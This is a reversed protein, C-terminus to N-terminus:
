LTTLHRINDHPFKQALLKRLESGISLYLISVCNQDCLTWPCERLHNGSGHNKSLSNGNCKSSVIVNNGREKRINQQKTSPHKEVAQKDGTPKPELFTDLTFKQTGISSAKSTNAM